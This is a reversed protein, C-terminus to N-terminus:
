SVWVNDKVMADEIKLQVQLNRVTFQGNVLASPEYPSSSLLAIGDAIVQKLLPGVTKKSLLSTISTGAKTRM